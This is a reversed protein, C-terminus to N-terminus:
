QQINRGDKKEIRPYKLVIPKKNKSTLKRINEAFQAPYDEYGKLVGAKILRVVKNLYKQMNIRLEPNFNYYDKLLMNTKKQNCFKCFAAINEKDNGGNRDRPVIHDATIVSLKFMNQLMGKLPSMKQLINPHIYLITEKIHQERVESRAIDILEFKGPNEMKMLTEGILANYERYPFWLEREKNLFNNKTKNLYQSILKRDSRNLDWDATHKKILDITNLIIIDMSVDMKKQLIELIDSQSMNPFKSVIYKYEDLIELFEPRLYKKNNKAISYLEGDSKAHEIDTLLKIRQEHTLTTIGCSACPVGEFNLVEFNIDSRKEQFIKSKLVNLFGQIDVDIGTLRRISKAQSVPYAPPLDIDGGAISESIEMLYNNIYNKAQPTRRLTKVVDKGNKECGGCLLITNEDKFKENNLDSFLGGTRKLSPLFLRSVIEPTINGNSEAGNKSAQKFIGSYLFANKLKLRAGTYIENKRPTELTLINKQMLEMYYSFKSVKVTKDLWPKMFEDICIELKKRDDDSVQGYNKLTTFDEATRKLYTKVRSKSIRSLNAFLDNMTQVNPKELMAATHKIIKLYFDPIYEKNKNLFEFFEGPKEIKKSEEILNLYKEKSLMKIGCVPCHVGEAKMLEEDVKGHFSLPMYYLGGAPSASYNKDPETKNQPQKHYANFFRISPLFTIKM